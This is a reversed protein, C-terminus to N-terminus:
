PLQLSKVEFYADLGHRGLERGYGSQKYGGFPALMNFGGGNVDVMGARLRRAVRLARERDGSFVGAALGYITENAMRVADDEGDYPLVALVPGFVEERAVSMANDVGGFVTPRVFWGRDLGGPGAEGGAALAAGEDVGSRIAARVRDRHAATAVPGLTTAPDLPDGLVYGDVVAAAVEVARDHLERPVLLRSWAICTQGSNLMCQRVASNVADELDADDLVISPSKGGLELTVRKVTQAALAAVRRGAATSGTFSVVDVDPHGVLAEGAAAGRGTVVNLVGPPLGVEEAAEALVFASLPAVESPKLVVTCGAALAPAVKAV